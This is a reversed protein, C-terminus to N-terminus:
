WMVDRWEQQMECHVSAWHYINSVPMMCVFDSRELTKMAKFLSGWVKNRQNSYPALVCLFVINKRKLKNM